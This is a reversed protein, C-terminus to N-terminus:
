DPVHWIAAGARSMQVLIFTNSANRRGHLEAGVMEGAQDKEERRQAACFGRGQAGASVACASVVDAHKQGVILGRGIGLDYGLGAGAIDGLQGERGGRQGLVARGPGHPRGRRVGQLKLGCGGECDLERASEEEGAASGPGPRQGLGGM